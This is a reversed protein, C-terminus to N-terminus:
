VITIQILNANYEGDNDYDAFNFEDGTSTQGEMPADENQEESNSTASLNM